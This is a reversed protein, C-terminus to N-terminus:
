AASSSNFSDKSKSISSALIELGLSSRSFAEEIYLGVVASISLVYGPVSKPDGTFSTAVQPHPNITKIRCLRFLM